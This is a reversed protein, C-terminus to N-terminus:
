AWPHFIGNPSGRVGVLDFFDLVFLNEYNTTHFNNPRRTPTKQVRNSGGLECMTFLFLVYMLFLMNKILGM